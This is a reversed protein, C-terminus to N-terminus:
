AVTVQGQPAGCAGSLGPPTRLSHARDLDRGGQSARLSVRLAHVRTSTAALLMKQALLIRWIAWWERHRKRLLSQAPRWWVFDTGYHLFIWFFSKTVARICVDAYRGPDGEGM